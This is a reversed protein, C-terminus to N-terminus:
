QTFSIEPLLLRLKLYSNGNRVKLFSEWDTGEMKGLIWRLKM